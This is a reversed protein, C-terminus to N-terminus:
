MVNFAAVLILLVLGVSAMIAHLTINMKRSLPIVILFYFLVFWALVFDGILYHNAILFYIYIFVSLWYVWRHFKYGKKRRDKPLISVGIMINGIVVLIAALISLFSPHFFLEELSSFEM